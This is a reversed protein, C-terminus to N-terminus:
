PLEDILKLAKEFGILCQGYQEIFYDPYGDMEKQIINLENFDDINKQYEQFSRTSINMYHVVDIRKKNLDKYHNSQFDKLWLYNSSLKHASPINKIVTGFYINKSNAHPFYLALLDGIRDWYNYLLSFLVSCLTFYRTDFFNKFYTYVTRGNIDVPSSTLDAIHPRYLLLQGLFYRVDLLCYSIDNYTDFDHFNIRRKKDARIIEIFFSIANKGDILYKEDELSQLATERIAVQIEENFEKLLHKRKDAIDINLINSKFNLWGYCYLNSHWATSSILNGISDFFDIEADVTFPIEAKHSFRGFASTEKVDIENPWKLDLHKIKAHSSAPQIEKILFNMERHNMRSWFFSAAHQKLNEVLQEQYAEM